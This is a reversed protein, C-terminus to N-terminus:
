ACKTTGEPHLHYYCKSQQLPNFNPRDNRNYLVKTVALLFEIPWTSGFEEVYAGNAFHAVQDVMLRFMPSGSPAKQMTEPHPQIHPRARVIKIASDAVQNQFETAGLFDGLNWADMFYAVEANENPDPILDLKIKDSYIWHAFLKFSNLTHEPLRVIGEQGESWGKKCAAEFLPSRACVIDKHVM